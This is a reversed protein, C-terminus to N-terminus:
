KRELGLKGDEGVYPEMAETAYQECIYSDWKDGTESHGEVNWSKCIKGDVKAGVIEQVEMLSLLPCTHFTGAIAAFWILGSLCVAFWILAIHKPKM